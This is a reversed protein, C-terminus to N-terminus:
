SIRVMEPYAETSFLFQSDSNVAVLQVGRKYYDNQIANMRDNYVRATPYRNAMFLIVLLKKDDFSSLSYENEAWGRLGM